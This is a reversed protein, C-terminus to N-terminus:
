KALVRIHLNALTRVTFDGADRPTRNALHLTLSIRGSESEPKLIAAVAYTGHGSQSAAGIPSDLAIRLRVERLGKKSRNKLRLVVHVSGDTANYRADYVRVTTIGSVDKYDNLQPDGYKSVTGAVAIKSTWVEGTGTRNDVWLPHFAGEVDAAIGATHGQSEWYGNTLAVDTRANAGHMITPFADVRGALDLDPRSAAESVRVSRMWSEGGDLSASFRVYYSVGDPNDRRDEWSVGVAGNAGVAMQPAIDDPGNDLVSRVADDDVALPASWTGGNDSSHAGYVGMRGYREGGWAV